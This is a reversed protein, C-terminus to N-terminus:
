MRKWIKKKKKLDECGPLIQVKIGVFFKFFFILWIPRVHLYELFLLYLYM